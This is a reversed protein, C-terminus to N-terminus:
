EEIKRQLDAPRCPKQMFHVANPNIGHLSMMESPHGSCFVIVANPLNIKLRDALERGSLGPMVVDLLVLRIEPHDRSVQLAEEGNGAVLAVYGFSRLTLSVIMRMAADDDVVLISRPPPANESIHNAADKM